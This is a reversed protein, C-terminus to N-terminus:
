VNYLLCILKSLMNYGHIWLDTVQLKMPYADVVLSKKYILGLKTNWSIDM